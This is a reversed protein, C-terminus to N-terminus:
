PCSSGVCTRSAELDADIPATEGAPPDLPNDDGLLNTVEALDGPFRYYELFGADPSQYYKTYQNSASTLSAWDPADSRWHETLMRSRSMGPDILSRGDLVHDPAVDVADLVTPAIDVNAVFRTSDTVGRGVEPNDPWRMFFPVKASEPYPSGKAVVGHEGWLWGNDSVFFALTDDDEGTEELKTFVSQVMDDVSMLSRLQEAREKVREATWEEDCQTVSQGPDCPPRYSQVGQPKDTLQNGPARLGEQFGPSNVLEDEPPVSASAYQEEPVAQGAFNDKHPVVPTLYMLWPQDDSALDAEEIFRRGEQAIWTTSYDNPSEVNCHLPDGVPASGLVRRTGPDEIFEFPCYPQGQFYGFDDFNPAIVGTSFRWSNLFKGFIGTRYGARDRLYRQITHPQILYTPNNPDTSPPPAVTNEHVGHNHVYQGTFITSRSPCCTPTTAFGETFETGGPAGSPTGDKFWDRTDTMVGDIVTGSARQDDTVIILVNPRLNVAEADGPREDDAGPGDDTIASSLDGITAPCPSGQGLQFDGAPADAYLPDGSTNSHTWIKTANFTHSTSQPDIGGNALTPHHVCNSWFANSTGKIPDAPGAGDPDHWEAAANFGGSHSVINNAAVSSDSASAAGSGWVIGKANRDVINRTVYAADAAPGMHVGAGSNDYIVNDAVLVYRANAIYTGRKCDHIRNHNIFVQRADGAVTICTRTNRSTVNNHALTVNDGTIRPSTAGGANRGDLVLHSLTVNAATVAVSAKIQAVQGEASRLTIGAVDVTIPDEEYFGAASPPSGDAYGLLCGTQGAVISHVLKDVTKFPQSITGPDNDDGTPSAYGDCTVTSSASGALFVFAAAIALAAVCSTTGRTLYGGV